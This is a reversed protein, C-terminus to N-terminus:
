QYSQAPDFTTAPNMGTLHGAIRKLIEVSDKTNKATEKQYQSAGLGGGIVLGMHELAGAKLQKMQAMPTPAAGSDTGLSSIKKGAFWAAIAAVPSFGALLGLGSSKAALQVSQKHQNYFDTAMKIVVSLGDIFKRMAPAGDNAITSFMAQLNYDLIKFQWGVSTLNPTTKAIIASAWELKPVLYQVQLGFKNIEEESVGLTNALMSRRATFQVSLGGTMLTHAYLLRAKEYTQMTQHVIKELGKFALGLATATGVLAATGAIQGGLGGGFKNRIGSGTQTGLASFVQRSAFAVSFASTPNILSMSLLSMDRTFKERDKMLKAADKERSLRVRQQLEERKYQREKEMGMDTLLRLPNTALGKGTNFGTGQTFSGASSKAGGLSIQAGKRFGHMDSAIHEMEKRWEARMSALKAKFTSQVKDMDGSVKEDGVRFQAKLEGGDPM